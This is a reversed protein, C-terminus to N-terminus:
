EDNVKRTDPLSKRVAAPFPPTELISPMKLFWTSKKSGPQTAKEQPFLCKLADSRDEGIGLISYIGHAVLENM